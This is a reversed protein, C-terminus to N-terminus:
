VRTSKFNSAYWSYLNKIGSEIDVSQKFGMSKLITNDVVRSLIGVPMESLYKVQNLGAANSILQTLSKISIATGSSINVLSPKIESRMCLYVAEAADNFHLFDRQASGDGWVCLEGSGKSAEYAKSILSPIVHGSHKNFRDYEGYLNTFLGYNFEIHKTEFLIQLYSYAHKKSMAYGFEGYHPLGNFFDSEKLPIQLYPYPYSAVTGAFFIYKVSSKGITSFLNNNIQTNEVISKFQNELNGQLGFVVSALHLVIEPQNILFYNSVSDLDLLELESRGPTLINKFGKNHLNLLIARGLGGGAGTILIRTKKNLKNM